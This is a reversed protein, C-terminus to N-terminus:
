HSVSCLIRTLFKSNSASGLQDCSTLVTNMSHFYPLDGDRPFTTRITVFANWLFLVTEDVSKRWLTAAGVKGGTVPLVAYLRSSAELISADTAKPTSGNLQRLVFSSLPAHLGRHLTPFLPIIQALSNIALLQEVYDTVSRLISELAQRYNTTAISIQLHLCRLAINRSM